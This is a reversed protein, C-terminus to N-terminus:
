EDLLRRLVRVYPPERPTREDRWAGRVVGARDIVVVTPLSAVRYTRGVEKSPDTLMPFGVRVGTAFERAAGQDDDISVGYTELGAPGYTAHLRDISALQSRCTSCRSSWFSLLVVQGRAESLRVNGGAIARLAFDPASEGVLEDDAAGAPLAVVLAAFLLARLNL